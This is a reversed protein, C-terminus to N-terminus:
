KLNKIIAPSYNASCLKYKIMAHVCDEQIEFTTTEQLTTPQYEITATQRDFEAWFAFCSSTDEKLAFVCIQTKTVVCLMREKVNHFRVNNAKHSYYATAVGESDSDEAMIIGAVCGM